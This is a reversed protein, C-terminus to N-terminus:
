DPVKPFTNTYKSLINMIYFYITIYVWLCVVYVCVCKMCGRGWVRAVYKYYMNFTIIIPIEGM